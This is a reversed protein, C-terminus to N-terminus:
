RRCSTATSDIVDSVGSFQFQRFDYDEGESDITISNLLGRAMDITQLRRLVRDEGEETALEAALDKMKYVAQVSRDLLKTPAATPWKRTASPGTSACM